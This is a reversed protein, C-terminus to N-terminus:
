VAMIEAMQRLFALTGKKIKRESIKSEKGGKRWGQDVIGTQKKEKGVNRKIENKEETNRPKGRNTKKRKTKRSNKERITPGLIRDPQFGLMSHYFYFMFAWKASRFYVM